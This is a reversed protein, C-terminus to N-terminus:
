IFWFKGFENENFMLLGRWPMIEGLDRRLLRFAQVLYSNCSMGKDSLQIIKLKQESGLEFGITTRMDNHGCFYESGDWWLVWEGYTSM